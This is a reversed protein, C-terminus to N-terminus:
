ALVSSKNSDAVKKDRAQNSPHWFNSAGCMLCVIKLRHLLRAAGLILETATTVGLVTQCNQCRFIHQESKKM